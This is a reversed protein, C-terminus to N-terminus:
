ERSMTEQICREVFDDKFKEIEEKNLEQNTEERKQGKDKRQKYPGKKIGTISRLIKKRFTKNKWKAKMSKAIKAKQADEM